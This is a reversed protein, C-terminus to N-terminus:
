FTLFGRRNKLMVQKKIKDVNEKKVDSGFDIKIPATILPCKSYTINAAGFISTVKDQYTGNILEKSCRVNAVEDAHNSLVAAQGYVWLENVISADYDKKSVGVRKAARESMGDLLSQLFTVRSTLEGPIQGSMGSVAGRHSMLTGSPLIYRTGLEQVIQYGMSAAFITVTHVKVDLSKIADIFQLGAAVSGGPTDLVLYVPSAKASKALVELTKKATYEGSVQQNFLVSNQETLTITASKALPMCAFLISAMALNKLM